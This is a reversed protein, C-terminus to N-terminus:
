CISRAFLPFKANEKLFISLSLLEDILPSLL